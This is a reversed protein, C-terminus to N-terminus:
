FRTPERTPLEQEERGRLWRYVWVIAAGILALVLLFYACCGCGCGGTMMIDDERRWADGASITGGGARAM